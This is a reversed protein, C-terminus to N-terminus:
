NRYYILAMLDITISELCKKSRALHLLFCFYVFFHFSVEPNRYDVVGYDRLRQNFMIYVMERNLVNHNRGKYEICYRIKTAPLVSPENSVVPSDDAVVETTSSPIADGAEDIRQRKVANGNSIEDTEQPEETITECENNNDEGDNSETIEKRKRREPLAIGPLHSHLLYPITENLDEEKPFFTLQLPILRVVYRTLPIHERQIKEMIHTLIKVPCFRKKMLKIIVIGKVDTLISVATQTLASGKGSNNGGKAAEVERRIMEEVSLSQHDEQSVDATPEPPYMEEIVDSILTVLERSTERERASQCTALFIGHGRCSTIDNGQGKSPKWQKQRGM